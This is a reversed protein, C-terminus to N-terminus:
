RVDGDAADRTPAGIGPVRQMALRARVWEDDAVAAFRALGPIGTAADAEM